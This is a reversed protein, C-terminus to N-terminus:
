RGVAARYSIVLPGDEGPRTEPFLTLTWGAATPLRVGRAPLDSLLEGAGAIRGDPLAGLASDAAAGFVLPLTARVIREFKEPRRTRALPTDFHVIVTDGTRVAYMGDRLGSRGEGVVPRPRGLTAASTSPPTPEDAIGASATTVASQAAPTAGTSQRSIRSTAGPPALLDPAMRHLATAGAIGVAGLTAAAVGALGVRTLSRRRHARAALRAERRCHLCVRTGPRQEHPCSPTSAPSM